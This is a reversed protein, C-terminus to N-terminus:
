RILRRASLRVVREGTSGDAVLTPTRRCRLLRVTAPQNGGQVCGVTGVDLAATDTVRLKYGPWSEMLAPCRRKLGSSGFPATGCQDRHKMTSCLTFARAITQALGTDRGFWRPKRFCFRPETPLFSLSSLDGDFTHNLRVRRKHALWPAPMLPTRRHSNWPASTRSLVAINGASYTSLPRQSHARNIASRSTASIPLATRCICHPM